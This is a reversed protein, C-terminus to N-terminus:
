PEELLLDRMSMEREDKEAQRGFFAKLEPAPHETAERLGGSFVLRGPALMVVRDAITRISQLEHTVVIITIKLVSRLDLLLQDLGAGTIPDLGASPEDCYLVEPDLAIARALAARKKMGGSLQEPYMDGAYELGVQRLKLRVTQQMIREPVRTHERMPIMVNEEITLSNLLAGNQFLVGTKKLLAHRDSEGMTYLDNGLVEVTGDLPELLGVLAKLLTSKGCGSGGVICSIDGRAFDIDAHDLTVKGPYGLRLHRGRVVVSDMGRGSM